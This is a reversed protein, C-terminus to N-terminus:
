ENRAGETESLAAEIKLWRAVTLSRGRKLKTGLSTDNLLDKGFQTISISRRECHMEIRRLLDENFDQLSNM